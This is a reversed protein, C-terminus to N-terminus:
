RDSIGVVSRLIEVLRPAHAKLSYLRADRERGAGGMRLRLERDGILRELAAKWEDISTALFGTEGAVVIESNAGVPSAVVPLACAMYQILKYGCKGRLFPGDWVPMIGIDMKQVEAIESEETWEILQLGPFKDVEAIVGAGVVRVEIGFKNSLQELLELFPRVLVWTSPSGIWGITVPGTRAQEAVAPGYADTDVVTPLVIAKDSYQKAYNQLYENGCLCAAAGRMLPALKRGLLLRVVGNRSADYMHFIADDYDFVVPKGSLFALREMWGPLYPFLECHVWILDHDGRRLLQGIRSLYAQTTSVISARQGKTIRRLHDNGLLPRYEIQFGAAALDREYLMLRQRTSAALDGYKMYALIRM